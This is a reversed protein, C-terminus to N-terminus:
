RKPEIEFGACAVLAAAFTIKGMIRRWTRPFSLTIRISM